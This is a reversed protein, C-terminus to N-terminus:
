NQRFTKGRKGKYIKKGKLRTKENIKLTKLEDCVALSQRINVSFIPNKAASVTEFIIRKRDNSGPQFIGILLRVM